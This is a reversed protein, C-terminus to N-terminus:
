LKPTKLNLNSLSVELQAWCGVMVNVAGLPVTMTPPPAYTSQREGGHAGGDAAPLM